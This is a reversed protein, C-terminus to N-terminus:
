AKLAYSQFNFNGQSHRIIITAPTQQSKNCEFIEMRIIMKLTAVYSRTVINSKQIIILHIQLILRTTTQNLLIYNTFIIHKSIILKEVIIIIHQNKSAIVFNFSEQQGTYTLRHSTTLKYHFWMLQSIITINIVLGSINSM